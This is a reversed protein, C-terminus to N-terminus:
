TVMVKAGKALVLEPELSCDEASAKHAGRGNNKCTIRACPQNLTALQSINAYDVVETTTFLCVADSFDEQQQSLNPKYRTQLFEWDSLQFGGTSVNKLLQRFQVQLLDNGQQRKVVSLRLSQSISRYLANGVHTVITYSNPYLIPLTATLKWKSRSVFPFIINIDNLREVVKASRRRAGIAALIRGSM